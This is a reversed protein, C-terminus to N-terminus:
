LYSEGNRMLTNIKKINVVTNGLIRLLLDCDDVEIDCLELKAVRRKMNTKDPRALRQYWAYARIARGEKTFAKDEWGKPLNERIM